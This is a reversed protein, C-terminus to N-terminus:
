TSMFCYGGNKSSEAIITTNISNLPLYIDRRKTDKNRFQRIKTVSVTPTDM